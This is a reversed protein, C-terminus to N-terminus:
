ESCSGNLTYWLLGTSVTYYKNNLFIEYTQRVEDTNPTEICQRGVLCAAFFSYTALTVVQFMILPSMVKGIIFLNSFFCLLKELKICRM